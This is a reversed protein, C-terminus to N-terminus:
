ARRVEKAAEAMATISAATPPKPLMRAVRAPLDLADLYEALEVGIRQEAAIFDPQQTRWGGRPDATWTRSVTHLGGMDLTAVIAISDRQIQLMVMVSSDRRKALDFGTLPAPEEGTSVSSVEPKNRFYDALVTTNVPTNAEAGPGTGAGQSQTAAAPNVTLQQM